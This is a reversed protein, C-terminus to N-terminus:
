WEHKLAVDGASFLHRRMGWIPIKQGVSMARVVIVFGIIVVIGGHMQFRIQERCQEIIWTEIPCRQSSLSTLAVGLNSIAM